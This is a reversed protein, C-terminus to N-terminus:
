VIELTRQKQAKGNVSFYNCINLMNYFLIFFGYVIGSILILIKYTKISHTLDNCYTIMSMYDLYKNMSIYRYINLSFVIIICGIIITFYIYKNKIDKFGVSIFIVFIYISQVIYDLIISHDFVKQDNNICTNIISTNTTNTTNSITLNNNPVYNNNIFSTGLNIIIINFMGIFMTITAIIVFLTVFSFKCNNNFLNKNKILINNKKHTQKNTKINQVTETNVTRLCLPCSQKSQLWQDICLNHYYHNCELKRTKKDSKIIGDLCISCTLEDESKNSINRSLLHGM